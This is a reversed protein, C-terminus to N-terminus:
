QPVEGSIVGGTAPTVAAPKTAAPTTASPAGTSIQGSKLTRKSGHITDVLEEVMDHLERVESEGM